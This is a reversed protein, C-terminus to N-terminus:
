LLQGWEILSGATLTSPKLYFDSYDSYLAHYDVM